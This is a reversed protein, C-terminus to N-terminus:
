RVVRDASDVTLTSGSITVQVTGDSAPVAGNAIAAQYAGPLTSFGTLSPVAAPSAANSSAAGGSAGSAGPSAAQVQAVPPAVAAPGARVSAAATNGALASAPIAATVAVIALTKKM